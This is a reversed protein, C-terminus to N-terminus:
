RLWEGLCCLLYWDDDDTMMTLWWGWDDDDALMRLWWGWDDDDDDLAQLDISNGHDAVVMFSFAQHPWEWQRLEYEYDNTSCWFCKNVCGVSDFFFSELVSGVVYPHSSFSSVVNQVDTPCQNLLSMISSLVSRRWTRVYYMWFQFLIILVVILWSM